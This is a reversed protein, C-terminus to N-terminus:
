ETIYRFMVQKKGKGTPRLELTPRNGSGLSGETVRLNARMGTERSLDKFRVLGDQSLQEPGPLAEFDKIAQAAGGVREYEVVTNSGGRFVSTETLHGITVEEVIPAVAEARIAMGSSFSDAKAMAGTLEGTVTKALGADVVTVTRVTTGAIAAGTWYAILIDTTIRSVTRAREFATGTAIIEIDRRFQKALAKAVEPISVVVGYLSRYLEEPDGYLLQGFTLLSKGIAPVAQVISQISDMVGARIGRAVDLMTQAAQLYGYGEVSGAGGALRQDAERLFILGVVYENVSLDSHNVLGNSEGWFAEFSNAVRRLEQGGTAGDSTSFHTGAFPSVPLSSNGADLRILGDDIFGKPLMSLDARHNSFYLDQAVRVTGDYDQASLRGRLERVAYMATVNDYTLQRAAFPSALLSNFEEYKAVAAQPRISAPIQGFAASISTLTDLQIRTTETAFVSVSSELQRVDRREQELKQETYAKIADSYQDAAQRDKLFQVIGPAAGASQAAPFPLRANLTMYIAIPPPAISSTPNNSAPRVVWTAVNGTSGSIECSEECVGSVAQVIADHSISIHTYFGYGRSPTIHDAAFLGCNIESTQCVRSAIIRGSAIGQASDQTQGNVPPGALVIATILGWRFVAKM